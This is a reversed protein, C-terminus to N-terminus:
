NEKCSNQNVLLLTDKITRRRLLMIHYEQSYLIDSSAVGDMDMTEQLFILLDMIFSIHKQTQLIHIIYQPALNHRRLRALVNDIECDLRIFLIMTM